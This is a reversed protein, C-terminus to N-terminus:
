SPPARPAANRPARMNDAPAETSAGGAAPSAFSTSMPALAPAVAIAKAAAVGVAAKPRLLTDIVYVPGACSDQRLRLAASHGGGEVSASVRGEDTRSFTITAGSAASATDGEMVTAVDIEGLIVHTEIVQM